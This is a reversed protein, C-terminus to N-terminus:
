ANEEEKLYKNFLQQFDNEIISRNLAISSFEKVRQLEKRNLSDYGHEENIVVMDYIDAQKKNGFKRLLRGRRQVFERPNTSSSLIIAQQIEPINVGEDLCKIAILTDVTGKKFLSIARKRENSSESQTYKVNIIGMELLLENVKELQTNSDKYIHEKFDENYTTAGCYILLHEVKNIQNIVERLKTIKEIAGYIIRARKFLLMEARNDKEIIRKEDDVGLIKVIKRTLKNYEEKEDPSLGVIIPYYNYGVLKNDKIANKLSYESIIGGLYEFLLDTKEESYFIEPTASLGLKMSSKPLKKLKNVTGLTHCEDYVLLMENNLKKLMLQFRDTFFTDITVVVFENSTNSFTYCEITDYLNRYWSYNDSFCQLVNYNLDNLEESWQYVLTKDPVIIINFNKTNLSELRHMLYIATKTKGSGTAFKFIGRKVELWKEVANKQYDYPEFNLTNYRSTSGDNISLKQYLDDVTENTSFKILVDNSISEQLSYIKLNQNEKSWYEKFDLSNEYCYQKQGEIWNKFVHFSEHNNSIANKTENNSGLITIINGEFDEFIGMKEHFIGLDNKPVAVNIELVEMRILLLLLKASTYYEENNVYKQFMSDMLKRTEPLYDENSNIQNYDSQTIFPSILLKIKGGKKVLKEISKIYEKLIESSFYGVARSYNKTLGLVPKYFDNLLNDRGSRYKVKLELKKYNM